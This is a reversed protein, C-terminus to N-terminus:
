KGGTAPGNFPVSLSATWTRGSADSGAFGFPVNVPPRLGSVRLQASITGKAAIQNTGFFSKIQSAYSTGNFSFDTLTTAVGATETLIITFTWSNNAEVVPNPNVAATVNSNQTSATVTVNASGTSGTFSTNGSYTATVTNAGLTLSSGAVTTTAVAGTGSAALSATALTKTGSTFTVTGTPVATGSAPKVTASIQTSANQAFSAPSATVSTTTSVSSVVGTWNTVLKGIDASGLGTVLDYGIGASYGLSGTTCNPTGVTCPVINSGSTIDHFVGSGSQALQYLNPNINGLGAKALIGKKVLNQNLLAVVGAFMPTPVSTGGVAQLSGGTYFLYGDHSPSATFSLDPVDRMGDNPVGTGSQWSPKTYYKSVGGGSGTLVSDGTTDNWATEPIYSLASSGNANTTTAWFTGAGEAFESGGIATVEPISAPINVGLGKVAVKAKPDDCGAAGSDGSSAIWTIGQANAQQALSRMSSSNQQECGGYSLSIVPALNQNIAYQASTFVNTSNVYLITANRAVAGAWQIDLHAEPQDNKVVGPDKGVLVIQPDNAPLNFKARFAQIDSLSIDTQGLVAIKQGTGDIGSAYLGAINYITFLDDPAIYHSGSGTTFNPPLSNIKLHMPEPRFDDLGRIETVVNAIATPLAPATRNAFHRKGNAEYHHISTLFAASVRDATGSVVIFNRGRAVETVTMGVSRVWAAIVNADNESTGFRDGFEEPTLWHHYDASSPDRQAELFADLQMQQEASPPMVLTVADIVMSPDVAGADNTATVEPRVRHHLRTTQTSDVVQTIRNRPAATVTVSALLAVFILGSKM